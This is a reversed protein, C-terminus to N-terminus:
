GDAVTEDIEEIEVDDPLDELDIEDDVADEDPEEPLNAAAERVDVQGTVVDAILRLRYERLLSIIRHAQDIAGDIEIIKGDLYKVIEDQESKPPFAVRHRKLKVGTLHPITNESGGAIFVGANAAFLMTYYLFRTNDRSLDKCRVRHIAKQFGCPEIEGTWIASRGAEGGECVLLDGRRLTYRTFEEPTIDMVALDTANVSDWQVDVNRVYPVLHDGTIRKTDLMKGLVSGYRHRLSMMEWDAPIRGLWENGTIKYELFNSRTRVDIRGSIINDVQTQKFEKLLRIKNRHGRILRRIRRDAWDLYRTIAEQEVLPPIALDISKIAEHTLGYRTVGKAEIHFQYRISPCQILYYLFSGTLGEQPRLIALHYGCVLDPATYKVLAPVGIDTWDESDKTILVDGKELRFKEIEDPTATAQMFPIRESIVENKYVDLYNCLRVPTEGEKVHKDVNSVRM